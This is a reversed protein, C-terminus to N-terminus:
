ARWIYTYSLLPCQCVHYIKLCTFRTDTWNLMVYYCQRTTMVYFELRAWAKHPSCVTLHDPRTLHACQSTIQVPPTSRVSHSSKAKHPQAHVTLHDTRTPHATSHLSRAKHPSRCQPTIQGQPTIQDHTTIQGQSTIQGQPTSRASHSPKAKNPQARVTLYDTRTPHATSHLSRAKHLSKAKHPQPNWFTSDTDADLSFVPNMIMVSPGNNSMSTYPQAGAGQGTAM